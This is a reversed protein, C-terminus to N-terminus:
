EVDGRAIGKKRRLPFKMLEGPLNDPMGEKRFDLLMRSLGFVSEEPLETDADPMGDLYIDIAQGIQVDSLRHKEVYTSLAELMKGTGNGVETERSPVSELHRNM